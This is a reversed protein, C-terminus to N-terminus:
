GAQLWARAGIKVGGPLSVSVGLHAFVDLSADHDVTINVTVIAGERNLADVDVVALATIATGAGVVAAGMCARPHLVM